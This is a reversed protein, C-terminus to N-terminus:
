KSTRFISREENRRELNQGGGLWIGYIHEWFIDLFINWDGIRLKAYLSVIIISKDLIYRFHFKHNLQRALQADSQM